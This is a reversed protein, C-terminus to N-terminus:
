TDEDSDLYYDFKTVKFSDTILSYLKKSSEGTTLVHPRICSPFTNVLRVKDELKRSNFYNYLLGGDADM